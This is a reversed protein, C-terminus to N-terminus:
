DAALRAGLEESMRRARVGLEQRRRLYDEPASGFAEGVVHTYIKVKPETGSPRILVRAGSECDLALLDQRGLLPSRQEADCLYDTTELVVEGALSALPARRLRAMVQAAAGSGLAGALRLSSPHCVWVGISTSLDALRELLALGSGLRGVYAILDIAAALGDKDLTTTHGAKAASCYGLAEEYALLFGPEVLAARALWKFGTLTRVVRGGHQAAWADLGPSSVVSSICVPPGLAEAWLADCLLLGVEDGGLQVYGGDGDPAALALRDADPDNAIALDVQERRALQLLRDLVGPEEPNPFPTTPFDPDPEAQELVVALEVEHPPLAARLTTLGVGHLPSYAVRVPRGGHSSELRARLQALYAPSATLELPRAGSTSRLMDQYRPASQMLAEIETDWPAVIQIGEDDYLKIGNDDKPNHSATVVVGACARLQRVAFAVLPTPVPAGATWLPLGFGGLIGAVTSAFRQSDKRADFGVVVGRAALEPRRALFTGLAWAFRACVLVNLRAPGPGVRGRLGATGFELRPEFAAAVALREDNQVAEELERRTEADPDEEAYGLAEARLTLWLDAEAM